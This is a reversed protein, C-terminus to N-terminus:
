PATATPAGGGGAPAAARLARALADEAADDGLPPGSAAVRDVVRTEWGEAALDAADAFCLVRRLAAVPDRCLDEYDLALAPAGTARLGRRVDAYTDRIQGAIQEAPPLSRLAPATSPRLSWFAAADGHVALRARWISRATALPDRRLVLFRAGPLVERALEVNLGFIANKLFLPRGDLGAFARLERAFGLRDTAPLAERDVVHTGPVFRLWHSWFFGFEHPEAPGRTVGHRSVIPHEGLGERLGLRRELLGALVPARWFRAVFNSVYHFAGTRALAQALFTSGSRPAYCIVLPPREPPAATSALEAELPALAAGARALLAEFDRDIRHAGVREPQDAERWPLPGTM